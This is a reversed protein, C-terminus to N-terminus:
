LMLKVISFDDELPGPGRLAHVYSVLEPIEPRGAGTADALFASFEAFSWMGSGDLREIEYAGDSILFVTAGPPVVTQEAQYVMDPMGGLIMGKGRLNVVAAPAGPCATMMLAPPHGASAYRLTRSPAHFVGYWITFYMNNHREMLFANNLATLTAGPDHFDTLPLAQSRLVNIASISLLAAGVGHGCVDLLYFCFNEADLWHYGFADGGLETSPIFRWETRVLGDLLPLPLLSQVYAAAEALEAALKQQSELLARHAEDRELRSIYGSSHHRIRAVLEIRDPLKVLYDNAGLAFAEAKVKPEEKTSLVILPVERTAVNARFYRALTLGDVDPMVLDQLIVTPKFEAAAALAQGPDQCYRFQIDTEAALMRRVAEGIIPQDDVLLVRIAHSTLGAPSGVAEPKAGREEM